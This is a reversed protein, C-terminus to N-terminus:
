KKDGERLWKKNITVIHYECVLCSDKLHKKKAHHIEDFIKKATLRIAEKIAPFLATDFYKKLLEAESFGGSIRHERKRLKVIENQIHWKKVAEAIMETKTQTM